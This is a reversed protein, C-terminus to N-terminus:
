SSVDGLTAAIAPRPARRLQEPVRTSCCARALAARDRQMERDDRLATLLAEFAIRVAPQEPPAIAYHAWKGDRRATALGASRLYALHRSIKPQPEDLVEVFFCVCVEGDSMLNLLRLRTRDALAQFLAEFAEATPKEKKVTM